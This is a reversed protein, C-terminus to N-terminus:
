PCLNRLFAIHRLRREYPVSECERVRPNLAGSASLNWMGWSMGKSGEIQSGIEGVHKQDAIERARLACQLSRQGPACAVKCEVTWEDDENEENEVRYQQRVILNAMSLLHQRHRQRRSPMRAGRIDEPLAITCWKECEARGLLHRICLKDTKAEVEVSMTSLTALGRTPILSSAVCNTPEVGM